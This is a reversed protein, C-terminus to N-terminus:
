GSQDKDLIHSIVMYPALYGDDIGEKLSYTFVPEGFYVLNNAESSTNPTATLGIQIASKFYDLIDRWASDERASGRHCEDVVILDFFNPSVQQKYNFYDENKLGDENSRSLQQYLGFFISKSKDIVGKQIKCMCNNFSKFDGVMTQDVLQNRDALYLVNKVIGAEKLRHVIQFATFTKGTGTAM